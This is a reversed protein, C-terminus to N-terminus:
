DIVIRGSRLERPAAEIMIWTPDGSAIEQMIELNMDRTEHIFVVWHSMLWGLVFCGVWAGCEASRRTRIVILIGLSLAVTAFKWLALLGPSQYEMMARALPNMENMGTNTVYLLTLYLDVASMLAIALSLLLVRRSRARLLPFVASFYACLRAPYPEHPSREPTLPPTHM